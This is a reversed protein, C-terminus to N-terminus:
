GHKSGEGMFNSGTVPAGGGRWVVRGDQEGHVVVHARVAEAPGEEIHRCSPWHDPLIYGKPSDSQVRSVFQEDKQM